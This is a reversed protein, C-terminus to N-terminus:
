PTSQLLTICITHPSSLVATCWGIVWEFNKNYHSNSYKQFFPFFPFLWAFHSFTYAFFCQRLVTTSTSRGSKLWRLKELSRQINGICKEVTPKLSMKDTWTFGLYKFETVMDIKGSNMTINVIPRKVQTHFLQVVTKSINIPQKWKRSYAYV